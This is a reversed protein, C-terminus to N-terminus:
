GAAFAMRTHPLQFRECMKILYFHKRESLLFQMEEFTSNISSTKQGYTLSGMIVVLACQELKEAIEVWMNGGARTENIYVSCGKRELAVKLVKAEKGAEAYRLSIFVSNNLKQSARRRLKAAVNKAAAVALKSSGAVTPTSSSRSLAGKTLNGKFLRASGGKEVQALKEEAVRRCIEASELQKGVLELKAEAISKLSEVADLKTEVQALKEEALRRCIEASELKKEVLELKDEATRSIREAVELKKLMSELLGERQDFM